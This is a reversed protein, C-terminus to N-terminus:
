SSQCYVRLDSLDISHRARSPPKWTMSAELIEVTDSYLETFRAAQQGVAQRSSSDPASQIGYRLKAKSALHKLNAVMVHESARRFISEKLNAEKGIQVEELDELEFEYTDEDELDSSSDTEDGSESQSDSDSDTSADSHIEDLSCTATAVKPAETTRSLSDVDICDIPDRDGNALTSLSASRTLGLAFVEDKHARAFAEAFARSHQKQTNPTKIFVAPNNTKQVQHNDFRIAIDNYPAM